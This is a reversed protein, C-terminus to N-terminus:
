NFEKELQHGKFVPFIHRKARHEVAEWQARFVITSVLHGLSFTLMEFSHTCSQWTHPNLSFFCPKWHPEKGM